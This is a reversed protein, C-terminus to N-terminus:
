DESASGAVAPGPAALALLAFAAAPVQRGFSRLSLSEVPDLAM